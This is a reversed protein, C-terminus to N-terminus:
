QPLAGPRYDYLWDTSRTYMRTFVLPMVAERVLSALPGATKADRNAAAARALKGARGAREREFAALAAPTSPAAGHGSEARLARALAIADELAMSAGQGAGVPHAADGVLV